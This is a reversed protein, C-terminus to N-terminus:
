SFIVEPLLEIPILDPPPRRKKKKPPPDAPDAVDVNNDEEANDVFIDPEVAIREGFNGFSNAFIFFKM